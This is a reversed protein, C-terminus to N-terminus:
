SGEGRLAAVLWARAYEWERRVTRESLGLAAATEAESLGAYFRMQVVEGARPDAKKLRQLAEDVVLLDNPDAATAVDVGTMPVRRRDGGHRLRGQARAREILIRRMAEAAAKFFEAQNAWGDARDGVIRLFAEHVLSTACLTQDGRERAMRSQALRRLEAYVLPLLEDALKPVVDDSSGPTSETPTDAL